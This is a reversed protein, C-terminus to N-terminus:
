ILPWVIGKASILVAVIATVKMASYMRLSHVLGGSALGRGVAEWVYGVRLRIYHPPPEGKRWVSPLWLSPYRADVAPRCNRGWRTREICWGAGRGTRCSGRPHMRVM